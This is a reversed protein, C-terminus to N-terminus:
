FKCLCFSMSHQLNDQLKERKSGEEYRNLNVLKESSSSLVSCCDKVSLHELGLTLFKESNQAVVNIEKSRRLRNPNQIIFHIDYNKVNRFIIPM